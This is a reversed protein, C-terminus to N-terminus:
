TVNTDSVGPQSIDSSAPTGEASGSEMSGTNSSVLTDAGTEPSIASTEAASDSSTEASAASSVTTQSTVATTQQASTAASTEEPAAPVAAATENENIIEISSNSDSIEEVSGGFSNEYNKYVDPLISDANGPVAGIASALAPSNMPASASNASLIAGWDIQKAYPNLTASRFNFSSYSENPRLKRAMVVFRSDNYESSCTSLVLLRDGFVVDVPSIIQNREAVESMYWKFTREDNLTEIYDHYHFVEGESDQYDFVNSVFYAFIVYDGAEFDSNFSIMPSGKYFDVNNKYYKLRGFMTGDNQNHGYLVINPSVYEPTYTCRYDMFIAGARNKRDDYTHTLYYDNDTGQVVPYNLELSPMELIGKVNGSVEVFDDILSSAISIREETTPPVTVISTTGASEDFVISTAATTSLKSNLMSQEEQAEESDRLTGMLMIGAGVFVTASVLFVLKRIVEGVSDGAWPLLGAIIPRKKERPADEGSEEPDASTDMNSDRSYNDEEPFELQLAESENEASASGDRADDTDSENLEEAKKEDSLSRDALFRDVSEPVVASTADIGAEEDYIVIMGDEDTVPTTIVDGSVKFDLPKTEGDALEKELEQPSKDITSEFGGGFAAADNFFRSFDKLGPKPLTEPKQASNVDFDGILSDFYKREDSDGSGKVASTVDSDATDRGLNNEESM